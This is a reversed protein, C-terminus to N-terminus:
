QNDFSWDIIQECKEPPSKEYIDKLYPHQMCQEVSFRNRPNYVLM